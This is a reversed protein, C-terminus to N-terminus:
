KSGKKFNDPQWLPQLNSFHFCKQQQEIETLNFASCPVVHDINWKNEGHGYNGWTMGPLFKSELSKILNEVSCGTLVLVGSIKKGLGDKLAHHFRRRLNSKIKFVLDTKRKFDFYEKNRKRTQIKHTKNYQQIYKKRKESRQYERNKFKLEKKHEDRYKLTYQMLKKKHTKRYNKQIIKVKYKNNDRYNKNTELIKKSHEKYYKKRYTNYCKRCEGKLVIPYRTRISFYKKSNPYANHCKSCIKIKIRRKIKSSCIGQNSRKGM